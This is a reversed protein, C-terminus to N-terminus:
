IRIQVYLNIQLVITVNINFAQINLMKSNLHCILITMLIIHLLEDSEYIYKVCLNQQKVHDTQRTM